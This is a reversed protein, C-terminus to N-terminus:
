KGNNQQHVPAPKTRESYKEIGIKKGWPTILKNALATADQLTKISEIASISPYVIYM